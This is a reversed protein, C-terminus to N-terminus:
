IFYRIPEMPGAENKKIENELQEASIAIKLM